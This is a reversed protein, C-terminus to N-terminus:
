FMQQGGVRVGAAVLNSGGGRSVIDFAGSRHHVRLFLAWARRPSGATIEFPMFLLQRSTREHRERELRPTSSAFSPGIGLAVTTTLLDNWPFRKWRLLIAANCEAHDQLGWHVAAQVESEWRVWPGWDSLRRTLAVAAIESDRFRTELRVVELFRTETFRGAYVALQWRGTEAAQPDAAAATECVPLALCLVACWPRIGPQRAARTM